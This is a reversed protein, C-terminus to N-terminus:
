KNINNTTLRESRRVCRRAIFRRGNVFVLEQGNYTPNRIALDLKKKNETKTSECGRYCGLSGKKYKVMTKLHNRVERVFQPGEKNARNLIDKIGEEHSALTYGWKDHGVWGKGASGIRTASWSSKKKFYSYDQDGVYRGSTTLKKQLLRVQEDHWTSKPSGKITLRPYTGVLFEDDKRDQPM